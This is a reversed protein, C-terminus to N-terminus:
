EMGSYVQLTIPDYSRTLPVEVFFAGVRQRLVKLSTKPNLLEILVRGKDKRVRMNVADQKTRTLYFELRQISRPGLVSHEPFIILVSRANYVGHADPTMTAYEIDGASAVRHAGRPRVNYAETCAIPQTKFVTGYTLYPRPSALNTNVSPRDACRGNHIPTGNARRVVKGHKIDSTYAEFQGGTEVSFAYDEDEAKPTSYFGMVTPNFYPYHTTQASVNGLGTTLIASPSYKGESRICRGNVCEWGPPCPNAADCVQGVIITNSSLGIPISGLGGTLISM